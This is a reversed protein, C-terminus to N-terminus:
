PTPPFALLDEHGVITVPETTSRRHRLWDDIAAPNLAGTDRVANAWGEDVALRLAQCAQTLVWPSRARVVEYGAAEFARALCTTAEPGAAPGFGKDGRQHANFHGRMEADLPHGPLWSAIGDYTLVTYFIQRRAAIQSAIKAIVEPSVLDFLASATVIDANEGIGSLDGTSLDRCLRSVETRVEPKASNYELLAPDHDVLVWSQRQPLDPALGRLNSGTGSGLDVIALEDREALHRLLRARVSANISRHDAPERLTLWDASFGTM